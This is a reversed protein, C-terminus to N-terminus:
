EKKRKAASPIDPSAEEEILNPEGPLPEEVPPALKYAEAFDEPVEVEGPGYQVGKWLHLEDLKLKPM